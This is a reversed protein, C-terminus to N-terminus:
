AIAICEADNKVVGFLESLVPSDDGLSSLIM